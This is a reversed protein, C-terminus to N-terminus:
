REAIEYIDKVIFLDFLEYIREYLLKLKVERNEELLPEYAFCIM